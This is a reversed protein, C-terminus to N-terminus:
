LKVKAGTLTGIYFQKNEIILVEGGEGNKISSDIGIIRQEFLPTLKEFSTHGVVIHRVNFYALINDINETTLQDDRFYGRYWVPGDSGDLLVAVSDQKVIEWDHDIITNLFYKNAMAPDLGYAVFKPSAGAHVFLIDNITVMVPKTRLWRGLFTADSYLYDYSTDMLQATQAYKDHIYRLDKELVMYEHNGLIFHVKGGQKKAQIELQYVLWLIETVYAGRDFIDGVIMLHGKGYIWNGAEDIVKHNSLFEVFLDLQGHVDSMALVKDVGDFEQKFDPKKFKNKKLVNQDPFVSFLSQFHAQKSPDYKEVVLKKEMVWKVYTEKGEFFIYPGDTIKDDKYFLIGDRGGQLEDQAILGGGSSCFLYVAALFLLSSHISSRTLFM